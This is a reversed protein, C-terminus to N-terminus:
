ESVELIMIKKGVLKIKKALSFESKSGIVSYDYERNDFEEHLASLYTARSGTWGRNGVERNFSDILNEDSMNKFREQFEQLNKSAM